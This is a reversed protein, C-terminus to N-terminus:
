ANAPGPGASVGPRTYATMALCITLPQISFSEDHGKDLRVQPYQAPSADRVATRDGPSVPALRPEPDPSGSGFRPEYGQSGVEPSGLRPEPDPSPSGLGPEPDPSPSGLRPEPDTWIPLSVGVASRNRLRRVTETVVTLPNPFGSPTRYEGAISAILGTRAERHSAPDPSDFGAETEAARPVRVRNPGGSVGSGSPRETRRARPGWGSGFPRETGWGAGSPGLVSGAKPCRPM